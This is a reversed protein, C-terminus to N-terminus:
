SVREKPALLLAALEYMLSGHSGKILLVDDPSLTKQLLPLLAQATAVHQGRMADPVAKHLHRMLECATFLLHFDHVVLSEALTAHLQPATDGLERMEGLAAIKRGKKGQLKWLEDTKAIAAKMSAPSANYSDDILWAKGGGSLMLPLVKGRGEVESFGVLAQATKPLPLKLAQAVALATLSTIAWHKGTAALIFSITEGGVDATINAGRQTGEYSLLKVDAQANEGFTVCQLIGNAQAKKRLYGCMPNDANLVAVAGEVPQEFIEAKADAIAQLNKFFELHVAEINTIVSVHPRVMEVLHRIEGAHNMGMEFVGFAAEVPLNALNLPTGIHNNYNGATAYTKGHAALAIRLMEKTSTKGVSGTVGVIRAKSRARSATALGRLAEMTDKVVLLSASRPLGEPVQSVIAAVAGRAFADAVYLHGDVREGKIAIFLDGLQVKRSDIEVRNAHWMGQSTGGTATAATDQNWLSKM